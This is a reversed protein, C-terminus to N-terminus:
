DRGNLDYFEAYQLLMLEAQDREPVQWGTLDILVHCYRMLADAV